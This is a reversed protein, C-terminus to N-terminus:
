FAEWDFDQSGTGFYCHYYDLWDQVTWTDLDEAEACANLEDMAKTASKGPLGQLHGRTLEIGAGCLFKIELGERLKASKERTMWLHTTEDADGLSSLMASYCRLLDMAAEEGVANMTGAAGDADVEGALSDFQAKIEACLESRPPLGYQEVAAACTKAEM